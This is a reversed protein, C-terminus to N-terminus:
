RQKRIYKNIYADLEKAWIEYGAVNPHLFDPMIAKSLNSNEDLFQHTLNLYKIGMETTLPKLLQNTKDNNIRVLESPTEGRPLISMLVIESHPLRTQLEVIIQKIGQTIYEPSEMRHGTNNTGILVMVLKPNINDIEGNQLRWIVNETRDGSFGLNLTPIDAFWNQWVSRGGKEWSHTISDGVLVLEPNTLQAQAVKEHHRKMWWSRSWDENQPQATTSILAPDPCKFLNAEPPTQNISVNKIALKGSGNATLKLISNLQTYDAKPRNFCSLPVVLQQWGQSDYQKAWHSIEVQSECDVGCSLALKLSSKTVDDFKLRMFLAGSDMSSEINIPEDTQWQLASYKANKFSFHATNQEIDLQTQRMKKNSSDTLRTHKSTVLQNEKDTLLTLHSNTSALEIPLNVPLNINNKDIATNTHNMQCGALLVTPLCIIYVAIKHM